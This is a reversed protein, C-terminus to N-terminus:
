SASPQWAPHNLIAEFTRVGRLQNSLPLHGQPATLNWTFSNPYRTWNNDQRWGIRDWLKSFDKGLSLWLKRQVSFGFKGESYTQWLLDLTQFDPIPVKDVESFYLWKRQVAAPGVLECLLQISLRDATLYDQDILSDQITQYNIGRDSQPTVIGDPYTAELLTAIASNGSRRLCQYIKGRAPTPPVDESNMLYTQLVSLGSDGATALRDVTALQTKLPGTTLAQELEAALEDPNPPLATSNQDSM